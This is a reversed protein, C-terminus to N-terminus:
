LLLGVASGILLVTGMLLITVKIAKSQFKTSIGAFFLVSAFLVTLLLFGNSENIAGIAVKTQKDSLTQLAHTRERNANKYEPMEFPNRPTGPVQNARASEWASVAANLADSFGAGKYKQALEPNGQTNATMYDAAMLIDIMVEQNAKDDLVSAEILTQSSKNYYDEAVGHWRSSQYASFASLMTALALLATAAIEIWHHEIKSLFGGKDEEATGQKEALDDM